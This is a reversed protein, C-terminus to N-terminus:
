PRGSPRYSNAKLLGLSKKPTYSLLSLVLKALQPDDTRAREGGGTSRDFSSASFANM